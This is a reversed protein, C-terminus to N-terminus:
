EVSWSIGRLRHGGTLYSKRSFSPHYYIGIKKMYEPECGVLVSVHTRGEM